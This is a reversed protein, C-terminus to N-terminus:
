AFADYAHTGEAAVFARMNPTQPHQAEVANLLSAFNGSGLAQAVEVMLDTILGYGASGATPPTGAVVAGGVTVTTITVTVNSPSIGATAGSELYFQESGVAGGAASYYVRYKVAGHTSPIVVPISGSSGSAVNGTSAASVASEKGFRDFATIRIQYTGTALSGGSTAGTSSTIRPKLEFIPNAGLEIASKIFRKRPSHKERWPMAEVLTLLKTVTGAASIGAIDADGIGDGSTLLDNNMLNLASILSELHPLYREPCTPM